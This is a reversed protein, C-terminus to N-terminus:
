FNNKNNKSGKFATMTSIGKSSIGKRRLVIIITQIFIRVDLLFSFKYTYLVDYELKEDWTLLNRGNIQALGTIGPKVNHRKKQRNNYRTLYEVLLPRPGIFSMEGKIVNILSPLEDLSTKRLFIGFKTLRKSDELLKGQFNLDNNMTRFKYIKFIKEQFGPRKQIFMIPPGLFILSLFSIIIFIPSLLFLSLIAFILDFIRKFKLYINKNTIM